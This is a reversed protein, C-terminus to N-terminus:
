RARIINATWGEITVGPVLEGSDSLEVLTTESYESNPSLTYPKGDLSIWGGDESSPAQDPLAEASDAGLHWRYWLYGPLSRTETWNEPTAGVLEDHWVHVLAQDNGILHMSGAPRGGVLASLDVDYGADYSTAPPVVRLACSHSGYGDGYVGRVVTHYDWPAFYATDDSAVGAPSLTECRPEDSTELVRDTKPDIAIIKTVSGYKTLGTDDKTWFVTVYLRDPTVAIEFDPTFGRMPEVNLPITGAFSMDSPNWIVLQQSNSDVFYSKTKSFLPLAAATYTGGVGQNAFSLKPGAILEGASSLEWRQIIPEFIAATYFYPDAKGFVWSEDIEIARSLDVHTSHDLAPVTTLYGVSSDPNFVRTASVYLPGATSAAPAPASDSSCGSCLLLM